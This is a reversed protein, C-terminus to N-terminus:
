LEQVTLNDIFLQDQTPSSDDSENKEIQFLIRNFVAPSSTISLKEKQDLLSGDLYIQLSYTKQNPSIRFEFRYFQGAIAPTTKPANPDTDLPLLEQDERTFLFEAHAPHEFTRVGALVGDTSSEHHGILINATFNSSAKHYAITFTLLFDSTLGEEMPLFFLAAEPQASGKQRTLALLQAGGSEFALTSDYRIIKVTNESTQSAEPVRWDDGSELPGTSFEPSEFETSYLPFDNEEGRLFSVPLLTLVLFLCTKRFFFCSSSNNFILSIIQTLRRLGASLFCPFRGTFSCRNELSKFLHYIM